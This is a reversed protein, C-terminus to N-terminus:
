ADRMRLWTINVKPQHTPSKDFLSPVERSECTLNDVLIRNRLRLAARRQVQRAHKNSVTDRVYRRVDKPMRSNQKIAMSVIDHWTIRHVIQLRIRAPM